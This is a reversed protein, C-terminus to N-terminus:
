LQGLYAALAASDQPDLQWRPMRGGLANGEPTTGSTVVEVTQATTWPGETVAQPQPNSPSPKHTISHSAGLTARTINPGIGTGRGQPGHCGACPLGDTKYPGGMMSRSIAGAHGRGTMFIAKGLAAEGGGAGASGSGGSSASCGAVLAAALLAAAAIALSTTHRM